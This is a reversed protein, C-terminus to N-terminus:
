LIEYGDGYNHKALCGEEKQITTFTDRAEAVWPNHEELWPFVDLHLFVDTPKAYVKAYRCLAEAGKPTVQYAHAGPFYKKSRLSGVGLAQPTNYSGYSPKGINMAGLFPKTPIKDVLVADHEFVTVIQQYKMSWQWIAHHSLFASLCNEFRSYVEVFGAKDIGFHEAIKEPNNKPTYAEWKQVIDGFRKASAICRDAVEVSQPNDMITIVFNRM